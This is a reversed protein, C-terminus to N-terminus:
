PLQRALLDGLETSVLLRVVAVLGCIVTVQLGAVRLVAHDSVSHRPTV